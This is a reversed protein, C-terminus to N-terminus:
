SEHKQNSVAPVARMAALATRVRAFVDSWGGPQVQRFLRTRPYWPSDVRDAMWRWDAVFPVLTWVPKGMAGALHGISTDCTIVLDLHTILAATEEFPLTNADIEHGMDFAAAGFFTKFEARTGPQLTFFRVGDMGLLPLFQEIGFSRDADHKYGASGKWCVGVKFGSVTAVVRGLEEVYRPDAHLYPVSAPVTHVTTACYLPVSLSLCWFDHDVLAQDPTYVADVGELTQFLRVLPQKCVLTVRSAGQRKLVSAYRCFQIEDGLGQEPWIAISKGILSEGHWEAFPLVPPVITRRKLSPSTRAQYHQWGEEFHGMYLLLLGMNNHADALNPDIAIAKRYCGLAETLKGQAHLCVGLNCYADADNPQLALARRLSEQSEALRGLEQLAVGLNVHPNVFDPKLEITRRYSAIAAEMHGQAQLAVGLNSHADVYDPKLDVAKRYSAVAEDLLGQGHLATALNNHGEAFDAKLALAKRYAVVAADLRGRAQLVNGLSGYAAASPASTAAQELLAIAADHHGMQHAILGLGQLAGAQGPQAQLIQRYIAEGSRLNGAMCYDSARQLAEAVTLAPTKVPQQVDPTDPLISTMSMTASDPNLPLACASPKEVMARHVKWMQEFADQLHSAFRAADCLPSALLRGRLGQRLDSLKPWNSAHHVGVNAYEQADNAIWDGLGVSALLGAGQRGLMGPSCMTLTPVGMWMAECTTTGGTYPFTDLIMDVQAHAALYEGRPVSGVLSVRQPAIGVQAMRRLLDNRTSESHMQKNQVRLRTEPLARMIRGWLALVEDTIKFLNQFCGFTLFGNRLAPLAAPSDTFCAIPPTFFFRGDPLYWPTESFLRAEAHPLVIRDALVYDMGPVGTSAWYGLWTVQVPAPKWAFVPLRNDATHGALDILVHIGDDHIRRAAACDDLGVLSHWAGFRAKMRQTLEDEQSQTPYAILLVRAPDFHALIGELFFGVPHNKLDGSVFGIRLQTSSTRASPWSDYVRALTQAQRGYHRAEALYEAGSARYSLALLLNSHAEFFNPQLALAQRYSAIAADVQGHARQVLGLNCFMASSPAISIAERILAIAAENKGVQHAIMGLYHLAVPHRPVLQLVQRYLVEAQSLSGAQQLAMARQIAHPLTLEVTSAATAATASVEESVM